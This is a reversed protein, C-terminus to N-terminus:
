LYQARMQEYGKGQFAGRMPGKGTALSAEGPVRNGRVHCISWSDRELLRARARPNRLHTGRQYSTADEGWAENGPRHPLQPVFSLLGRHDSAPEGAEGASATESGAATSPGERDGDQDPETDTLWPASVVTVEGDLKGGSLSGRM